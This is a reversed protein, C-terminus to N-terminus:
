GLLRAGSYAYVYINYVYTYLRVVSIPCPKAAAVVKSPSFFSFFFIVRRAFDIASAVRRSTCRGSSSFHSEREREITMQAYVNAHSDRGLVPVGSVLSLSSALFSSSHALPLSSSRVRAIRVKPRQRILERVRRLLVAASKGASTDTSTAGHTRRMNRGASGGRPGGVSSSPRRTRTRIAPDRRTYVRRCLRPDVKGCRDRPRSPPPLGVSVPSRAPTAFAGSTCYDRARHFKLRTVHGSTAHSVAPRRTRTRTGSPVRRAPSERTSEIVSDISKEIIFPYPM